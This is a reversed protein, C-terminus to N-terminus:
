HITYLHEQKIEPNTVVIKEAARDVKNFITIQFPGYEFDGTGDVDDIIHQINQIFETYLQSTVHDMNFKILIDASNYEQIVKIHDAASIKNYMYGYTSWDDDTINLLKNAVLQDRDYKEQLLNAIKTDDVYVKHFHSQLVAFNALNLNNGTIYAEINYYKPKKLEHNFEGWKTIFRGLEIGDAVNQLQARQQAEINNKNFWGPGRSSTCTFHYVLASWTQKIQVGNLVLRTLIDSDERSRRFMTDHGGISNWVDKYLTFPAFFYETYSDEKQSEAYETFAKLDFKTPDLGFDYTIKEGSNGHLPPEIRTSCLIMNPQIRQLIELDYDQCVVMDSQIYSVIDNSAQKFMENINRAYGYCIPLNNKLIKLNPFESKQTLLWEFTNQNDTDIFVMIEHEKSSLNTKLSKFLLKIHNLENRATNICFSIKNM